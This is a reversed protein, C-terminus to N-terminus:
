INALDFHASEQKAEPPDVFGVPVEVVLKFADWAAADDIEADAPSHAAEADEDAIACHITVASAFTCDTQTGVPAKAVAAAKAM